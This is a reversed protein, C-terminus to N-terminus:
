SGQSSCNRPTQAFVIEWTYKHFVDPLRRTYYLNREPTNSNVRRGKFFYGINTHQWVTFSCYKQSTHNSTRNCKWHDTCTLLWLKYLCHVSAWKKFSNFLVQTVCLCHLHTTYKYLDDTKGFLNPIRFQQGTTSTNTTHKQVYVFVTTNRTVLFGQKMDPWKLNKSKSNTQIIHMSGGFDM